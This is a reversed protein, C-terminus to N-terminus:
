IVIKTTELCTYQVIISSRYNLIYLNSIKFLMVSILTAHTQHYIENDYFGSKLSINRIQVLDLGSDLRLALNM